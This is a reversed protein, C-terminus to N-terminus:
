FSHFVFGSSHMVSSLVVTDCLMQVACKHLSHLCHLLAVLPSCFDSQPYLIVCTVHNFLWDAIRRSPRQFFFIGYSISDMFGLRTFLNGSHTITESRLKIHQCFVPAPHAEISIAVQRGNRWTSQPCKADTDFLLM